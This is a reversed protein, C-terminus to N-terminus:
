LAVRLRGLSGPNIVQTVKEVLYERGGQAEVIVEPRRRRRGHLHDELPVAMDSLVQRDADIGHFGVQQRAGVLGDRFEVRAEAAGTDPQLDPM